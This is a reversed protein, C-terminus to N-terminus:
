SQREEDGVCVRVCESVCGGVLWGFVNGGLMWECVYKPVCLDGRDSGEM